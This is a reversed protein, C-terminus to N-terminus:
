AQRLATGAICDGHMKVVTNPHGGGPRRVAFGTLIRRQGAVTIRRARYALDGARIGECM